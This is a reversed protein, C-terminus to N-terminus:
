RAGRSRGQRAFRHRWQKALDMARAIQEPRLRTALRERVPAAKNDGAGEALDFWMYAKVPDPSTGKGQMYMVGLNHLAGPHAYRAARRYWDLADAYSQSAGQGHEYMYGLNFQADPIGQRAAERYWKMAKAYDRDTGKGDYYMSALNYQAWPLGQAAARHYWKFASQPNRPVSYGFQYMGAVYMQARANGREALPLLERLARAYDKQNFATIGEDLGARAGPALTLSLVLTTLVTAKRM